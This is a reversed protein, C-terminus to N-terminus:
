LHQLHLLRLINFFQVWFRDHGLNKLQVSRSLVHVIPKLSLTSSQVLDFIYVCGDHSGTYIYKQGTSCGIFLGIYMLIAREESCELDICLWYMYRSKIFLVLLSKIHIIWSLSQLAGIQIVLFFDSLSAKISGAMVGSLVVSLLFMLYSTDSRAIPSFYCRILTRLVLHGKYTMISQDYPHRIDRRM